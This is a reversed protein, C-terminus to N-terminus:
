FKVQIGLSYNHAVFGAEVVIGVSQWYPRIEAPLLWTIMAHSLSSALFYNNVKRRSPFHGLIPNTESVPVDYTLINPDNGPRLKWTKKDSSQGSIRLTQLWDACLTIQYAMELAEYRASWPATASLLVSSGLALWAAQIPMM